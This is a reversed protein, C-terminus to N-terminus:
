DNAWPQFFIPLISTAECAIVIYASSDQLKLVSEVPHEDCLPIVVVVLIIKTRFQIAIQFLQQTGAIM